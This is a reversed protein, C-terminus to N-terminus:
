LAFGSLLTNGAKLGGLAAVLSVISKTLGNGCSVADITKNLGEVLASLFGVAGKLVENNALGM